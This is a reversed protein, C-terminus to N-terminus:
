ASDAAWGKLNAPRPAGPASATAGPGQLVSRSSSLPPDPRLAQLAARWDAGCEPARSLPDAADSGEPSSCLRGVCTKDGCRFYQQDKALIEFTSNTATSNLSEVAVVALDHRSILGGVDIRDGQFILLESTANVDTTKEEGLSYARVITYPVGSARLNDEGKLKWYLVDKLYKSRRGSDQTLGGSSILVFKKVGQAASLRALESVAEGYIRRNNQIDEWGHAGAAFVVQTVGPMLAKLSAADNLDGSVWEVKSGLAQTAQEKYRTVGRVRYGRSLLERTAYQGIPGTAGLLLVLDGEKASAKESFGALVFPLMAAGQLVSRRQM